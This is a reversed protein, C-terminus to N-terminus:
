FDSVSNGGDLYYSETFIDPVHICYERFYKLEFIKYVKFDIKGTQRLSLKGIETFTMDVFLMKLQRDLSTYFM